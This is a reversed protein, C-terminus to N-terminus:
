RYRFSGVLTQLDDAMRALDATARRAEALGNNTVTSADAVGGITTAIDASGTAADSVSRTMENTTATQEEVASAITAQYANIEGVVRSIEGIAQVAATTDNQIIGIRRSIDDTAKATEQALEKVEGAVVAFGKGAEGARASEITANLALLNTQEAISTIVKVVEGIERSSDGLKSVIGNTTEATRVANDAIQAVEGANRAIERISAGMEEAGAAVSQVNRSVEGASASVTTAQAETQQSSASLEGNVESLKRAAESLGAANGSVRQVLEQIRGAFHNFATAVAGFEDRRNDPLRRTLDGDGEAIEALGIRLQRLSGTVERIVLIALALTLLILLVGLVLAIVLANRASRGLDDALALMARTQYDEVNKLLNIKSTAANYWATSDVGFGGTGARDLAAKEMGAVQGVVPQAMRDRYETLVGAAASGQFVTLYAQASAIATVVGALQGAAFRDTGFVNALQAREVGAQEKGRCFATYAQARAALDVQRVYNTLAAMAGITSANTSTFWGSVAAVPVNLASAQDRTQQVGAITSAARDLTGRLAAPFSTGHAALFATLTARRADTVLRQAQMESAFRTGKSSLFVATMGREKQMEHLLNGFAIDAQVMMRATSAASADAQRRLAVEGAFFGLALAPVLALTLLKARVSVKSLALM